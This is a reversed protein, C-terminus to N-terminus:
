IIRELLHAWGNEATARWDSVVFEASLIEKIKLGALNCYDMEREPWTDLKIAGIGKNRSIIKVDESTDRNLIEAFGMGEGSCDPLLRLLYHPWLQLAELTPAVREATDPKWNLELISKCALSVNCTVNGEPLQDFSIDAFLKPYGWKERGGAVTRNLDEFELLPHGGLKGKYEVAAVIMVDKFGVVKNNGFDSASILIRDSAANFPTNKLNEEIWTAEVRCDFSIQPMSPCESPVTTGYPLRKYLNAPDFDKRM